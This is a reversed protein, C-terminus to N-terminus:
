EGRTVDRIVRLNDIILTKVKSKDPKRYEIDFKLVEIPLNETEEHSFKFITNPLKVKKQILVDETNRKVVTFTLEDGDEVFYPLYFENNSDSFVVQVTQTDGRIFELM